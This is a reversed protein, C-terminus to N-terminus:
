TRACIVAAAMCWLLAPLFGGVQVRAVVGGTVWVFAHRLARRDRQCGTHLSPDFLARFGASCGAIARHHPCLRRPAAGLGLARPRPQSARGHARGCVAGRGGRERAAPLPSILQVRSPPTPLRAPASHRMVSIGTEAWYCSGARCKNGQNAYLGSRPNSRIPYPQRVLGLLKKEFFFGPTPTKKPFLTNFTLSTRM